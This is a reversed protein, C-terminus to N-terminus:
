RTLYGGNVFLTQGSVWQSQPGALFAVVPTIDSEKGLRGSVSLNAAFAASQPTEAQHFFPNDLPGPAITNVTIGRKGIEKSLMRTFEEGSAKTGAYLSYGPASGATLSTGLNIIRGNDNMRRAAEQMTFLIAKTNARHSREYDAETIEAMPKKVIYGVTNVLIDIRGFNSQAADFVNKVNVLEALDGQVLVAKAGQARVSRATEEAQDKTEARHYHVVVDAGMAALAIAYARGQNNRAGTVIAAKGKLPKDSTTTAASATQAQADVASAAVVGALATLGGLVRRRSAIIEDNSENSQAFTNM